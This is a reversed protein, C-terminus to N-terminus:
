GGLSIGSFYQFLGDERFFKEEPEDNAMNQNRLKLWSSRRSSKIKSGKWNFTVPNEPFHIFNEVIYKYLVTRKTWILYLFNEHFFIRKLILKRFGYKFKHYSNVFMFTIESFYEHFETGSVIVAVNSDNIRRSVIKKSVTRLFHWGIHLLLNLGSIETLENM